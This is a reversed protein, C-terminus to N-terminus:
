ADSTAGNSEASNAAGIGPASVDVPGCVRLASGEASARELKRVARAFARDPTAYRRHWSRPRKMGKHKQRKM